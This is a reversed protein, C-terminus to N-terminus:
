LKYMTCDINNLFFVIGELHRKKYAVSKFRFYYNNNVEICSELVNKLKTTTTTMFVLEQFYLPYCNADAEITSM